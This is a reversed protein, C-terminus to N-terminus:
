AAETAVGSGPPALSRRLAPTSTRRRGDPFTVRLTADPLLVLEFGARHVLRHHRRCLLVGNAVDTSGGDEWHHVHHADCWAVPRDCGPFRCGGDRIAIIRRQADTFLRETRGHSLVTGHEDVVLRHLVADCALLGLGDVPTGDAFRGGAGAALEDPRVVVHVHTTARGPRECGHHALFSRAITVLADGRREAVPLERDGADALQLAALVDQGDGAALDFRGAVRGEFHRAVSLSSAEADGPPTPQENDMRERWAAMVAATDALSLGTLADVVPGGVAAFAARHRGVGDLVVEVQAATVSGDAAAAELAPFATLKRATAALRRASRPDLGAEDQLWPSAAVHGDVEYGRVSDLRGVAVMALTALRSCLEVLRRVSAAGAPVGVGEIAAELEEFM